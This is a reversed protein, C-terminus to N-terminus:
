IQCVLVDGRDDCDVPQLSDANRHRFAAPFQGPQISFDVQQVAQVDRNKRNFFGKVAAGVGGKREPAQYTKSLKEVLVAAIM